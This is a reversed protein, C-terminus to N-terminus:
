IILKIHNKELLAELEKEGSGSKFTKEFYDKLDIDPSKDQAVITVKYHGERSSYSLIPYINRSYFRDKKMLFEKFEKDVRQIDPLLFNCDDRKEKDIM